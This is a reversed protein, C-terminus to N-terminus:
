EYMDNIIDVNCQSVKKRGLVWWILERPVRNFGEFQNELVITLSRFNQEIVREWLKMTYSMLKIGRYNSCNQINGKNKYIPVVINHRWSNPMKRTDLIRNFLRALWEIGVKRLCKWAEIPIGNPGVAKRSKM